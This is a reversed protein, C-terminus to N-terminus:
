LSEHEYFEFVISATTNDALATFKMLYQENQKLIFERERSTSGGHASIPSGDSGIPISYIKTGDASVTPDYYFTTNPTNASNRNNNYATLQTGDGTTTPNEFFELTGAGDAIFAGLLHCWEANDATKIHWYKPSAIDVNTDSDSVIYHFGEHIEHHPFDLITGSRTPGDILQKKPKPM